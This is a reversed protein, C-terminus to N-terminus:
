HIHLNVGLLLLPWLVVALVASVIPKLASVHAFYHHSSAIVAGVVLWIITGLSTRM